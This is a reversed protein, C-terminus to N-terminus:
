HDKSFRTEHGVRQQNHCHERKSTKSEELIVTSENEGFQQYREHAEWSKYCSKVGLSSMFAGLALQIGYAMSPTHDRLAPWAIGSDELTSQPKGTVSFNSSANDTMIGHLHGDTLQFRDLVGEVHM